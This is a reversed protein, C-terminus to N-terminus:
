RHPNYNRTLTDINNKKEPLSRCVIHANTGPTCVKARGIELAAQQFSEELIHGLVLGLAISVPAIEIKGLIYAAFGVVILVYVDFLSNAFGYTGVISLVLIAPVMAKRPARVM